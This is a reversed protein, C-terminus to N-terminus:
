RSLVPSFTRPGYGPPAIKEVLDVDVVGFALVGKKQTYARMAEKAEGPDITVSM